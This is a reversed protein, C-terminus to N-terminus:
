IMKHRPTNKALTNVFSNISQDITENWMATEQSTLEASDSMEETVITNIKKVTPIDAVITMLNDDIVADLMHYTESDLTEKLLKANVIEININSINVEENIVKGIANGAKELPDTLIKEFLVKEDENLSEKENNFETDNSLLQNMEEADLM